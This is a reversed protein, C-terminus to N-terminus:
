KNLLLKPNSKKEGSLFVQHEVHVSGGAQDGFITNGSCKNSAPKQWCILLLCGPPCSVQLSGSFHQYGPHSRQNLPPGRPCPQRPRNSQSACTEQYKCHPLGPMQSNSLFLLAKSSTHHCSFLCQMGHLQLSLHVIWLVMLYTKPSTPTPRPVM